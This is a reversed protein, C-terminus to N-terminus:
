AEKNKKEMVNFIRDSIVHTEACNRPPITVKHKITFEPGRDKPMRFTMTLQKKQGPRLMHPFNSIKIPDKTELIFNSFDKDSLNAIYFYAVGRENPQANIGEFPISLKEDVFMRLKYTEKFMENLEADSKKRTM